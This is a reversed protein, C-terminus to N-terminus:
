AGQLWLWLIPHHWLRKRQPCFMWLEPFSYIYLLIHVYYLYLCAFGALFFLSRLWKSSGALFELSETCFVLIGWPWWKKLDNLYGKMAGDKWKWAVLNLLKRNPNGTPTFARSKRVPGSKRFFNLGFCMDWRWSLHSKKTFSIQKNGMFYFSNTHLYASSLAFPSHIFWFFCRSPRWKMKVCWLVRPKEAKGVYSIFMGLRSINRWVQLIM